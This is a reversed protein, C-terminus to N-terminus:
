VLVPERVRSVHKGDVYVDEKPQLDTPYDIVRINITNGNAARLKLKDGVIQIVTMAGYHVNSQSKDNYAVM